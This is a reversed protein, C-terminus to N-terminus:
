RQRTAASTSSGTGATPQSSSDSAATAASGQQPQLEGRLSQLESRIGILQELESFQALQALFQAGDTPNLPDQNKLQAVLLELFADKNALADTNLGTGRSSADTETAATTAAVDM